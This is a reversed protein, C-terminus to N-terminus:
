CFLCISDCDYLGQLGSDTNCVYYIEDIGTYDQLMDNENLDYELYDNIGNQSSGNDSCGGLICMMLIIFLLKGRRM